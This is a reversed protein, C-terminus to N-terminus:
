ACPKSPPNRPPGAWRAASVAAAKVAVVPFEVLDAKDVALAAEVSAVVQEAADALELSDVGQAVRDARSDALFDQGQLLVAVLSEAVAAARAGKAAL